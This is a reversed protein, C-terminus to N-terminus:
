GFYSSQYTGSYYGSSSSSGSNSSRVSSSRSYATNGTRYNVNSNSAYNGSSSKPLKYMSVVLNGGKYNGNWAIDYGDANNLMQQYVLIQPYKVYKYNSSGSYHDDSSDIYKYNGIKYTKASVVTSFSLLFIMAFVLCIAFGSLKSKKVM